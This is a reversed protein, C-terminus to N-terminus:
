QTLTYRGGVTQQLISVNDSARLLASSSAFSVNTKGTGARARLHITAVLQRGTLGTTSGRAISITGNGGSFPATIDFASNAPDISVFDFKDVGYTLDAQVANVTETQSNEWIQLVLTSGNAIKQSAPEISVSVASTPRNPAALTQLITYTGVAAFLAVFLVLGAKNSM